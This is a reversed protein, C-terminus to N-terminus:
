ERLPERAPGAVAAHQVDAVDVQVRDPELHRPLVHEADPVGAERGAVIQADLLDLLVKAALVDGGPAQHEAVAGVDKHHVVRQLGGAEHAVDREDEGAMDVPPAEGLRVPRDQQCDPRGTGGPGPREGDVALERVLGLDEVEVVLAEYRDVVDGKAPGRAVEPDIPLEELGRDLILTVALAALTEGADEALHLRRRDPGVGAGTTGAAASNLLGRGKKLCHDRPDM